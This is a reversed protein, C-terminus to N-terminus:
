IERELRSNQPYLSASELLLDIAGDFEEKAQKLFGQGYLAEGKEFRLQAEVIALAVPDIKKEVPNQEAVPVSVPELQREIPPPPPPLVKALKAPATPSCAALVPM